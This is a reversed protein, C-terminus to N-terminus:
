FLPHVTTFLALGLTYFMAFGVVLATALPRTRITALWLFAPFLVACYRGVGEFVGASLPLYLNALMFAGYAAGFRRWVLPVLIVFAIGTLGYLADYPAMRDGALYAYPHTALNALLRLPALWPRGGPYYGWRQLTAAWEFPHGTLMWIYASYAALGSGALALGVAARVRRRRGPAAAAPVATGAAVSASTTAGVMAGAPATGRVAAAPAMDPPGTGSAATRRFAIWALAPWMLIGPVRTAAAIGGCLGGLVFRDTRFLYFALVAFLLYTSESYAVGFFFGFPFISLLLVARAAADVPLDLRALRYFVVAALVYSTWAIAIAAIYYTAHHHGFPEGIWRILLPYVPFYAINSRGGPAPAYGSWAIGQFYGSDYRAFADWFPSTTGFVTFQEPQDLPFVINCLLGLLASALRFGLAAAAVQLAMRRDGPATISM